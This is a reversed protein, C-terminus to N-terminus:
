LLLSGHATTQFASTAFLAFEPSRIIGFGTSPSIGVPERVYGDFYQQDM